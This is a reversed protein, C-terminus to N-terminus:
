TGDNAFDGVYEADVGARVSVWSEGSLVSIGGEVKELLLEKRGWMGKFEVEPNLYTDKNRM